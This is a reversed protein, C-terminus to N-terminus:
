SNIPDEIVYYTDGGSTQPTFTLEDRLALTMRSLERISYDPTEM